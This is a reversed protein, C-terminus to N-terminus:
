GRADTDPTDSWRGHGYSEIVETITVEYADYWEKWRRKAAKHAPYSGFTELAELSEWRYVVLVEEREPAHWTRKDLYGETDEAAAQIADNVAHFEEDYEGPALRFTVLYVNLNGTKVAPRNSKELLPQTTREGGSLRKLLRSPTTNNFSQTVNLHCLTPTHSVTSTTPCPQFVVCGCCLGVCGSSVVGCLWLVLGVRTTVVRVCPRRKAVGEGASESTAEPEENMGRVREPARARTFAGAAGLARAVVLTNDAHAIVRFDRLM